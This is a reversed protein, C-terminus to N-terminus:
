SALKRRLRILRPTIEAASVNVFPDQEFRSIASILLRPHVSQAAELVDTLWLLDHAVIGNQKAIAKFNPHGSLLVCDEIDEALALAFCESLKLWNHGNFYSQALMVQTGSLRRVDLALRSLIQGAESSLTSEGVLPEPVVFALNLAGIADLLGGGELDIICMIDSIIIQTAMM